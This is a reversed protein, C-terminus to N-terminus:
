PFLSRKIDLGDQFYGDIWEALVDSTQTGGELPRRIGYSVNRVDLVRSDGVMLTQSPLWIGGPESNNTIAFGEEGVNPRVVTGEIVTHIDPRDHPFQRFGGIIVKSGDQLKHIRSDQTGPIPEMGEYHQYLREYATPQTSGTEASAATATESM